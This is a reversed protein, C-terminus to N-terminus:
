LGLTSDVWSRTYSGKSMDAWYDPRRRIAVSRGKVVDEDKVAYPGSGPVLKFNFEKLYRAGEIGNLARASMIPLYHAFNWERNNSTRKSPPLNM